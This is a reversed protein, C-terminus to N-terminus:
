LVYWLSSRHHQTLEASSCQLALHFIFPSLFIFYYYFCFPSPRPPTGLLLFIIFIFFFM